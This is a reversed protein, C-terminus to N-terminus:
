SHSRRTIATGAALLGVEAVLTRKAPTWQTREIGAAVLGFCLLDFGESAVLLVWLPAKRAVSRAALAAGLHGLLM